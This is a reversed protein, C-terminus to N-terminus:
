RRGYSRLPEFQYIVRNNDIMDQRFDDAEVEGALWVIPGTPRNQMTRMLTLSLDPVEPGEIITVTAEIGLWQQESAFVFLSARPDRRLRATRVRSATGSSWIKGDVVGVAVRASKAVGDEVTIMAANRNQRIFELDESSLTM